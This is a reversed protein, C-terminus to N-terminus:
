ADPGAAAEVSVDALRVLDAFSPRIAKVANDLTMYGDPRHISQMPPM